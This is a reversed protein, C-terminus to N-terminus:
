LREIERAMAAREIYSPRPSPYHRRPQPQPQAGSHLSLRQWLLIIWPRRNAATQSAAGAAATAFMVHRESILVSPPSAPIARQAQGASLAAVKGGLVCPTHPSAPGAPTRRSPEFPTVADRHSAVTRPTSPM